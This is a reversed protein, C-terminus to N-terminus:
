RAAQIRVGEAIEISQESVLMDGPKLGEVIELHRDRERGIRVNRRVAKGNELVFVYSTKASRDDRYIAAAPIVIAQANSGTLIEGEAFMGAKLKGGSNAVQIRVKASRTETEVAPAVEVIRGQFAVGAYSNVRFAVAQGAQISALDSSVVLCELELRTNDVVTFVATPAELYAGKNVFKKQIIGSVPSQIVADRLRKRALDLVAKAQELQAEAVTIQARSDQASIEGAKLDKDTIGGSKLLNQSRELEARSHAELLRARELGAEAVKVGTEAQRLSLQYNEDNVWIVAEGAAVPDGEEKDFRTIKGTTEAKVDVRANSVLTGTIPVTAVFTQTEVKSLPATVPAPESTTTSRAEQTRCGSFLVIATSAAIVAIIRM